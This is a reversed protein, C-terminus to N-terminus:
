GGTFLITFWVTTVPAGQMTGPRFLAKELVATAAPVDCGAPAAFIDVMRVKGDDGVIFDAQLTKGPGISCIRPDVTLRQLPQPATVVGGVRYPIDAAHFPPVYREMCRLRSKGFEQVIGPQTCQYLGVPDDAHSSTLLTVEGRSTIAYALTVPSVASHEHSLWFASSHRTFAEVLCPEAIGPMALPEGCNKAGDGAIARARGLVEPDAALARSSFLCLTAAMAVLLTPAYRRKEIPMM